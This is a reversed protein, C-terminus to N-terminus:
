HQFGEFPQAVGRTQPDQHQDVGLRQRHRLQLLHQPHTLAPNGRLQRLELGRAQHAVLPTALVVHVRAGRRGVQHLERPKRGVLHGLHGGVFVGAVMWGVIRNVLEPDLGDRAVKRMSMRSGWMFGLAVLIGFGHIAFDDVIPFKLM